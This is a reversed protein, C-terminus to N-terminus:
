VGFMVRESYAYDGLRPRVPGKFYKPHGDSYVGILGSIPGNADLAVVSFGHRLLFRGLPRAFRVFDTLDRCYALYAFPLGYKKRKMFVFPYRSSGSDCILSMCGYGAHTRLLDIEFSTLDDDPDLNSLATTVRCDASASSLTPVCLVRGAAYRSYGQADLLLHTEPRPTINFYTVERHKLARNMFLSAYCRFLPAVYWSSVSCRITKVGNTPIFSFILLIVGVPNGKFELLYGFKPYAAPTLHHSLHKFALVWFDRNRGDARFGATLLSLVGDIDAKEIERFRVRAFDSISDM